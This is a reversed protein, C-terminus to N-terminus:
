SGPVRAYEAQSMVEDRGVRTFTAPGFRCTSSGDITMTDGDTVRCTLTAVAFPSELWRFTAVFADGDAYASTVM